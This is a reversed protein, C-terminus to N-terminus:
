HSEIINNASGNSGVLVAKLDLSQLWKNANYSLYQMQKIKVMRRNYNNIKYWFSHKHHINMVIHVGATNSLNFISAVHVCHTGIKPSNLLLICKKNKMLGVTCIKFLISSRSLIGNGYGNYLYNIPKKRTKTRRSTSYNKSYYPCNLESM